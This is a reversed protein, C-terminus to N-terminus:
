NELNQAKSFDLNLLVVLIVFALIIYLMISSRSTFDFGEAVSRSSFEFKEAVPTAQWEGVSWAYINCAESTAPETNSAYNTCYSSDYVTGQADQCEVIQTKTYTTPDCAGFGKGVWQFVVTPKCEEETAPKSATCKSVDSVVGFNDECKITRYRKGSSSCDPSAPGICIKDKLGANDFEKYKAYQCEGKRAGTVCLNYDASGVDVITYPPPCSSSNHKIIQKDICKGALDQKGINEFSSFSPDFSDVVDCLHGTRSEGGQCVPGNGDMVFGTPCDYGSM